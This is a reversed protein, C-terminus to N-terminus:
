LSQVLVFSGKVAVVKWKKDVDLVEEVSYISWIEGGIKGLGKFMDDQNIEMITVAQGILRSVGSAYGSSRQLQNQKYRHLLLMSLISLTFFVVLQVMFSFDCVAAIYAIGSGASLGLFYLLGPHGIEIILFFFALLFWVYIM